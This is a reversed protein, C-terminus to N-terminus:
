YGRTQFFHDMVWISSFGANETKTVIEKINDAFGAPGNPFTFNPIQLGIKM